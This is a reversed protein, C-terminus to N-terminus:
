SNLRHRELLFLLPMCGTEGSLGRLLLLNPSIVLGRRHRLLLVLVLEFKEVSLVSATRVPGLVFHLLQSISQAEFNRLYVFPM